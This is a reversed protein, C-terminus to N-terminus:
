LSEVKISNIVTSRNCCQKIGVYGDTTTDQVTYTKKLTGNVYIKISTDKIVEFVLTTSSYSLTCSESRYSTENGTDLIQMYEISYKPQLQYTLFGTDGNNRKMGIYWCDYSSSVLEITVKFDGTILKNYYIGGNGSAKTLTLQNNSISTTPASGVTLWNANLTGSSFDDYFGFEELTVTATATAGSYSATLTGSATIGTVNISAVGSSNTTGSGSGGTGGTVSITANEVPTSNDTLTVSVTCAGGTATYSASGFSLSYSHTSDSELLFVNMTSGYVTDEEVSLTSNYLEFDNATKPSVIDGLGRM